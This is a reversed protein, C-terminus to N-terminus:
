VEGGLQDARARGVLFAEIREVLADEDDSHIWVADHVGRIWTRQRRAFRRTDRQMAELANVLTDSGEAVPIVHRYGIAGFPRLTPPHRELLGRVERLLGREIMEVCRADTRRDLESVGPDLALHLVRYPRDSFGHAGRLASPLAGGKEVLELARVLRRLDKPHIAQAAAPDLAALRRHLAEADGKASAAAHEAELRARLESDAGSADLLGDLFARVYLGTGGVLLVVRGRAHVGAAAARAERLYRGANYAVDPAVVDIMHHPVFARETLGPKATGIDLHRYVQMSDASVVEVDFRAAIRLAARTKGSATPGTLVVVPPKESPPV